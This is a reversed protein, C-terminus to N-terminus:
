RLIDLIQLYILITKMSPFAQFGGVQGVLSQVKIEMFVVRVEGLM